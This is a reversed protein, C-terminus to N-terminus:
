LKVPWDKRESVKNFSSVVCEGLDVGIAQAILDAYIVVDRLEEAIKSYYDKDERGEELKRIDQAVENAEGILGFAFRWLPTNFVSMEFLQKSRIANPAQLKELVNKVKQRQEKNERNMCCNIQTTVLYDCDACWFYTKDFRERLEKMAADAKTDDNSEAIEILEQKTKM